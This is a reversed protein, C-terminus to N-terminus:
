VIKAILDFPIPKNFPFQVSGKGQKYSALGKKFAEIGKPIPYFGIHNKFVAFYVLPHGNLSFAPMQYSIAEKVDPAVEHVITRIKELIERIEPPFRSIYEDIPNM